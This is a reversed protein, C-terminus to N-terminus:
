RADSETSAAAVRKSASITSSPSGSRASVRTATAAAVSVMARISAAAAVSRGVFHLRPSFTLHTVGSGAHAPDVLDLDDGALFGGALYLAALLVMFGRSAPLDQPGSRFRLMDLFPLILRFM